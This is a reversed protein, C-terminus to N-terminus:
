PQGPETSSDTTDVPGPQVYVVGNTDIKVSHVYNGCQLQVEGSVLPIGYGNIVLENSDGFKAVLLTSRYPDDSLQVRYERSVLDIDAVEKLLYSDDAFTFEIVQSQSTTRATSVALELDLAVRNVASEVRHKSLLDLYRPSVVAALIGIILVVIVLEIVSFASRNFFPMRKM